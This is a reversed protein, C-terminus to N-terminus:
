TFAELGKPGKTSQSLKVIESWATGLANYDQGIRNWDGGQRECVAYLSTALSHASDEYGRAKALLGAAAEEGGSLLLRILHHTLEWVTIRRNVPDYEADAGHIERLAALMEGADLLKVKGQGSRVIAATKLGDVSVNKARSLTEADGYPGLAFGRQKFWEIAWRTEGDFESERQDLVSYLEQNILQLATRLPMAEGSSEVVKAYQSYIAMGPGIAAQAMDVPAVNGQQLKRIAGPLEKKLNRVFEQRTAVPASAPRPRCVLVISSALANTGRGVNRTALESRTPWTGDVSLGSGVVGTLFTEWGTSAIATSESEEDEDDEAQKFAYYISIPSESIQNKAVRSFVLKMGDEFFQRAKDRSGEHRYPTAVLEESKPVLVTRMAEPYLPALSRRLWCYFYDSLDAYGINDYYPPDTSYVAKLESLQAPRQEATGPLASPLDDLVECLSQVCRQFDGAADAFIGAEAFDWTMPLAQRGFTARLRPPDVQWTCLVSNTDTMKDVAFALYTAVADGYAEAGKGGAELSKDHPLGKAKADGIVRQRAELVLDSFTTLAVLQRATFLDRHKAMGYVQVRFSLAKEPLDTDPVNKPEAKAAAAAQEPSPNVYTRVGNAEVVVAMLQAGIRKARGESRVYEFPVSTDCVICKAGNRAVTANPPTGVGSRNVHFSVRKGTVKPEVWMEKGAKGSLSFSRVLPMEAKCAPNPCEVTRAWLWAVVTSSGGGLDPPLAAKPYLNGIRKQAEDRMWAGYFRVDEALGTAGRWSTDGVRGQTSVKVTKAKADTGAKGPNVPPRGGFRAPIDILAKTILVAVPNLDAGFARLGLRQAELPISGGGCFPDLVPPAHEALFALVQDRKMKSDHKLNKSRAVSRAIEMRAAHLVQEDNSNKWVVMKEIIAFLRQRESNQAEETAFEEPVSSPDDVLQGFIVARCAALPRRAWWLHLTSPHGHRISKEKASERNIAELPLAVEILKKRPTNM